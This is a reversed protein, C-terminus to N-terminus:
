ELERGHSPIMVFVAISNIACSRTSNSASRPLQSSRRVTHPSIGPSRTGHLAPCQFPPQARVEDVIRLDARLNIRCELRRHGIPKPPIVRQTMAIQFM